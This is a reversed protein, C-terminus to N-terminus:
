RRSYPLRQKTRRADAINGMEAQAWGVLLDIAPSNATWLYSM